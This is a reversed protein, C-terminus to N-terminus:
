RLVRRLGIKLEELLVQVPLAAEGFLLCQPDDFGARLDELGLRVEQLHISRDRHTSINM